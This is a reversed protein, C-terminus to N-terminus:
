MVNLHVCIFAEFICAYVLMYIFMYLSILCSHGFKNNNKRLLFFFSKRLKLFSSVRQVPYPGHRIPEGQFFRRYPGPASVSRAARGGGGGGGRFHNNNRVRGGGGGGCGGYGRNKCIIDDLSMDLSSSMTLTEEVITQINAVTINNNLSFSFSSQAAAYLSHFHGSTVCSVRM